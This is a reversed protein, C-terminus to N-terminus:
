VHARFGESEWDMGTADSARLLAPPNYGNYLRAHANSCVFHAFTHPLSPPLSSLHNGVFPQHQKRSWSRLTGTGRLMQNGSPGFRTQRNRNVFDEITSGMKSWFRMGRMNPHLSRGHRQVRSTIQTIVAFRLASMRTIPIPSLRGFAVGRQCLSIRSNLLENPIRHQFNIIVPLLSHKHSLHRLALPLAQDAAVGGPILTKTKM